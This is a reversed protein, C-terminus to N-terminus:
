HWEAPVHLEDLPTHLLGAFVFPVEHLSPLAQVTPSVQWDPAQVLPVVVVHLADSWHWEAPVQSVTVPAHEFGAFASPVVHLSPLAQVVPSVQWDPEHWLPVVLVHVADSWHWEAPVQSVDVPAHEFGASAFPVAHLSLLAQVLPSLQWDPEHVPPVVVTHV